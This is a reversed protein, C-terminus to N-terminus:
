DWSLITKLNTIAKNLGAITKALSCQEMYSINPDNLAASCQDMIRELSKIQQKTQKLNM